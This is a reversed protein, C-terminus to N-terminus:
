PVPHCDHFFGERRSLEEASGFQLLEVGFGIDESAKLHCAMQRQDASKAIQVIKGHSAPPHQRATKREAHDNIEEIGRLVFEGVPCDEAGAVQVLQESTEDTERHDERAIVVKDHMLRM